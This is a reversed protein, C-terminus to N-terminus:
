LGDARLIAQVNRRLLTIYSDDAVAGGLPDIILLRLGLDELLPELSATPLQPESFVAKIKYTKALAYLKQLDRPTPERGPAPQFVAIIELGYAAAFYRWGDHFVIIKHNNLAACTKKLEGDLLLLEQQYRRSNKDYLAAHAPDLASLRACINKTIIVGNRADLWYHPDFKEASGHQHDDAHFPKLTIHNQLSVIEANTASEGVGDIWNDIVGIKFIIRAKQLARVQGPTLDFTHPSAGAPLIQIVQAAKGAVNRIIDALPFITAAIILPKEPTLFLAPYVARCILCLAMFLIFKIHRIKKM